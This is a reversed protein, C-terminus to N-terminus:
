GENVQMVTRLRLSTKCYRSILISNVLQIVLAQIAGWGQWSCVLELCTKLCGWLFRYITFCISFAYDTIVNAELTAYMTRDVIITKFLHESNVSSYCKLVGQSIYDLVECWNGSYIITLNHCCHHASVHSPRITSIVTGFCMVIHHHCGCHASVHSPRITASVIHWFMYHFSSPVWPTTFCTVIQHLCQVYM